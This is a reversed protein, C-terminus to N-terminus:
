LDDGFDLTVRVAIIGPLKRARKVICNACLIGYGEEKSTIMDWQHHSLTTDLPMEKDPLGCDQCANRIYYVIPGALQKRRDAPTM